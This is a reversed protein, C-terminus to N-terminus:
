SKTESLFRRFTANILKVNKYNQKVINLLLLVSHRIIKRARQIYHMLGLRMRSSRAVANFTYIVFLCRPASDCMKICEIRSSFEIIVNMSTEKDLYIWSVLILTLTWVHCKSPIQSRMQKDPTLMENIAPSM